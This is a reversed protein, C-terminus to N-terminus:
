ETQGHIIIKIDKYKTQPIDQSEPDNLVCTVGTRYAHFSLLINELFSHSLHAHSFM